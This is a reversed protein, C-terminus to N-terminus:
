DRVETKRKRHIACAGSRRVEAVKRRKDNDYARKRRKNQSPAGTIVNWVRILGPANSSGSFSGPHVSNDSTVPERDPSESAIYELLACQMQKRLSEELPFKLSLANALERSGVPPDFQLSLDDRRKITYATKRLKARFQSTPIESM